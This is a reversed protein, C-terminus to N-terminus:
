AHPSAELKQVELGKVLLVEFYQTADKQHLDIFVKEHPFGFTPEDKAIMTVTAEIGHWNDTTQGEIRVRVTRANWDVDRMPEPKFQFESLFLGLGLHQVLTNAAAIAVARSCTIKLDSM